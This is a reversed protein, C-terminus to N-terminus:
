KGMKWGIHLRYETETNALRKEPKRQSVKAIIEIKGNKSVAGIEIKFYDMQRAYEEVTIEDAFVIEWEAGRPKHASQGPAGEVRAPPAAAVALLFLAALNSLAMILRPKSTTQRVDLQTYGVDWCCPPCSCCCSQRPRPRIMYPG